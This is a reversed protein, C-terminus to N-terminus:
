RRRLEPRPGGTDAKSRHGKKEVLEVQLADFTHGEIPQGNYLEQPQITIRDCGNLWQTTAVVVGRFGSVSDKAIDGLQITM